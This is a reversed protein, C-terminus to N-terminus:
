FHMHKTSIAWKLTALEALEEPLLGAEDVHRIPMLLDHQEAVADYPYKNIVM